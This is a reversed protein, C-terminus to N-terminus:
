PLLKGFLDRVRQDWSHWRRVYQKGAAAIAARQKAKGKGLWTKVLAPLEEPADYLIWHEGDNLGLLNELGDVRQQLVLVGAALAEFPRNSLYGSAEPWQADSVAIKANAYLAAGAAFDYTTEGDALSWGNGYIGVNADLNRLVKYLAARSDSYNNGLYVVDHAPMEPLAGDDVPEFGFPWFAANVGAAEYDPLVGGNVVLQLDFQRLLELMAPATLSEPWYDGNWNVWKTRPYEARLARIDAASLVDTGQMQTFVLTPQFDNLHAAFASRVDTRPAHALYDWERVAGERELALRLGRKNAKAKEWYAGPEFIPLYLVRHEPEGYDIRTM